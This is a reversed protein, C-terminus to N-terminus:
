ITSHMPPPIPALCCGRTEEEPVMERPNELCERVPGSLGKDARGQSGGIGAEGASPHAGRHGTKIYPRPILLLRVVLVEYVSNYGHGGGPIM